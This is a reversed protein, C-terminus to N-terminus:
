HQLGGCDPVWKWRANMRSMNETAKKVSAAELLGEAGRLPEGLHRPNRWQSVNYVRFIWKSWYKSVQKLTILWSVLSTLISTPLADNHSQETQSEIASHHTSKLSLSSLMTATQKLLFSFNTLMIFSDNSYKMLWLCFLGASTIPRYQMTTQRDTQSHQCIDLTVTLLHQHNILAHGTHAWSHQTILGGRRRALHRLVHSFRSLKTRSHKTNNAKEPNRKTQTNGTNKVQRTEQINLFM